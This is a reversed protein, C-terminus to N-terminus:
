MNYIMKKIVNIEELLGDDKRLYEAIKECAHMVTTHDRGGIKSGISPYSFKFEERLLYMIIQRPRVIEQKRTKILLQKEQIGYFQAVAHIIHKININKKPAAMTPSLIKKIDDLVVPHKSVRFQIIVKNLAGELERVNKQFSNAIYELIENSLSVQKKVTKNKLIALRTEYDPYGIDAIMGGEFRSRLRDELTPIAKPPRDSSIVIQKNKEYLSNFTHFFEEQTKDKGALFQVDDIILLDNKRYEEKFRDMGRNQIAQVLESTFKESSVYKVKKTKDLKLVENGISQLLHTKGLGVEGYIFLPNYITGLNKTISIAAAHALENSSGIVFDNFVYRTNLNTDKDVGNFDFQNDLPAVEREEARKKRQKIHEPSSSIIFKVDKVDSAASRLSKLIFKNFKNELWEKAFSNPVSILVIGDEKTHIATHQFWTNFSARSCNLEVEALVRQWLETNHMIPRYSSNKSKRM